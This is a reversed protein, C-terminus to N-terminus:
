LVHAGLSGCDPGLLLRPRVRVVGRALPLVLLAAGRLVAVVTARPLQLLPPRPLKWNSVAPPPKAAAAAPAVAPAAAAPPAAAPLRPQSSPRGWQVAALLLRLLM